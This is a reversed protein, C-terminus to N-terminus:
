FACIDKKIVHHLDSVTFVIRPESADSYARGAWLGTMYSLLQM